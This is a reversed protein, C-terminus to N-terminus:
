RGLQAYVQHAATLLTPRDVAGTLAWGLGRDQWYLATTGEDEAFRFATEGDGPLPRLYLTLRDGDRNQYMLQAAPGAVSPLLRGGVLSYGLDGLDPAALTAGLRRSLWRILHDQQDAAVEVPHAVEPVYVLHASLAEAALAARLREQALWGRAQWGMGAGIALLLVSAALAATARRSWWRRRPPAPADDGPAPDAPAALRRDLAPAFVERLFTRDARYRDLRAADDPHSALHAAVADRRDEPLAEDLWAHLEAETVPRTM